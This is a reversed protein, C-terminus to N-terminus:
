GCFGQSVEGPGITRMLHFISAACFYVHLTDRLQALDTYLTFM